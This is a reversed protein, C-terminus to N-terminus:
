LPLSLSLAASANCIFQLDQIVGGMENEMCGEAGFARYSMVAEGGEGWAARSGLAESEDVGEGEEERRGPM